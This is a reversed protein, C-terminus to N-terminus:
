KEDDVSVVLLNKDITVNLFHQIGDNIKPLADFKFSENDATLHLYGNSLALTIASSTINENSKTFSQLIIGNEQRTLVFM